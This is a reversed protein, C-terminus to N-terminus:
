RHVTAGMSKRIVGFFNTAQSPTIRKIKLELIPRIGARGAGQRIESVRGQSDHGADVVRKRTDPIKENPMRIRDIGFSLQGNTRETLQQKRRENKIEKEINLLIKRCVDAAKGMSTIIDASSYSGYAEWIDSSRMDTVSTNLQLRESIIRCSAVACLKFYNKRQSDTYTSIRDEIDEVYREVPVKAIIKLVDMDTFDGSDSLDYLNRIIKADSQKFQWLLKKVDDASGSIQSVDYLFAEDNGCDPSENFTRIPSQNPLIDRHMINKWFGASAVATASPQQSMISLQDVFSRKFHHSCFTLFDKYTRVDSVIKKSQENILKALEIDNKPIKM